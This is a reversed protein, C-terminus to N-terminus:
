ENNTSLLAKLIDQIEKRIIKSNKEFFGSLDFNLIEKFFSYLSVYPSEAFNGILIGCKNNTYRLVIDDDIQSSFVAFVPILNNAYAVTANDIDANQRKSDKSKYGQRVEFVIGRFNRSKINHLKCFGFIWKIVKDRITINSIKEINILGDLYLTKNKKSKTRTEYSWTVDSKSKYELIDVLLARLLRECGIGIQRYISTMGGAAKHATFMYPSDLGIWRYFPDSQYLRLFQELDYGESSSHGFKPKYKRCERLPSLFIELYQKDSDMLINKISLTLFNKLEIM